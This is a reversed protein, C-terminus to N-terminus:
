LLVNVPILKEINKLQNVSELLTWLNLQLDSSITRKQKKSHCKGLYPCGVCDSLSFHASLQGKKINSRIPTHDTPYREILNIDENIEFEIVDIKNSPKNGCMDTLYMNINYGKAANYVDDSHFGGDVYM